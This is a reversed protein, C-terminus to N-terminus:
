FSHEQSLFFIYVPTNGLREWGTAAAWSPVENAVIIRAGTNTLVQYIKSKTTQPAAWFTSEEGAPIEAVIALRSLRQWGQGLEADLAAAKEGARVGHTRLADAIEIQLKETRHCRVAIIAMDVASRIAMLSIMIVAIVQILRRSEESKPLRVLCLIAAWLLVFFQSVYRGQVYLVGYMLFASVAPTWLYWIAAFDQMTRRPKQQMVLLVLIGEILVGQSWLWTAYRRLNDTIARVQDAVIFRPRIGEDWYSPDYFPPYTCRIPTAFEYAIPNRFVQRTSHAPTGFRDPEGQWHIDPVGNVRWAYNLSGSEGVTFHGKIRSLAYVYPGSIGIFVILAAIGGSLALTRRRPPACLVATALFVVALPLMVAKALFGTGLLIGLLCFRKMTAGAVRIRVVLGQSLYVFASLLMDPTTLTVQHLHMFIFVAYGLTWFIGDSFTSQLGQLERSSVLGQVAQVEGWFFRFCVVTCAYILCNTFQVVTLEHQFSPKFIWLALGQILPFLPSWLANIAARWDGRLFNDGIDLDVVGDAVVGNGSLALILGLAIALLCLTNKMRSDHSELFTDNDLM